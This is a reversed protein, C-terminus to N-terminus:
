TRDHDSDLIERDIRDLIEVDIQTDFKRAFLKTSRAVEPYDHVRLVSPSSADANKWNIYRMDDNVITPALPSNMLLTQFILEDPIDVHKFFDVFSRNRNTFRAIYEVCDRTLCWYSSGGFPRLGQPIRRRVPVAVHRGFRRVHWHEFRPLGGDTWEPSPLAFYSMFSRGANRDFFDVIQGNTKIPYDQGTLLIAHDFSIARGLLEDIGTLTARVHGYGGWQCPSRELLHVNSLERTGAVVRKFIGRAAHKDIHIMITTGDGVLRQVLRLLQDPLRHAIVIYALRV